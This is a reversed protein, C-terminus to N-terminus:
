PFTAWTNWAVGGIIFFDGNSSQIAQVANHLAQMSSGCLRNVTQGPVTHPLRTMLSMIRAINFGQELTQYVCGWIVDDVEAPDLDTNRDFLAEVLHASLDEARTVRFVGNKSRGMPTRVCDIIVADRLSM